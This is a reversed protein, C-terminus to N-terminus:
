HETSAASSVATSKENGEVPGASYDEIDHRRTSEDVVRFLVDMEELSLGKTEPLFLTFIFGLANMTGFIMWTKWGINLVSTPTIKSVVYNFLWVVMVTIAM